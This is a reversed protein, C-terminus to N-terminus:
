VLGMSGLLHFLNFGFYFFFYFFFWNVHIFVVSFTNAPDFDESANGKAV